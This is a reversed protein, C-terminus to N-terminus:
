GESSVGQQVFLPATQLSEHLGDPVKVLFGEIAEAATLAEDGGHPVIILGKAEGTDTKAARTMALLVGLKRTDAYKHMGTLLNEPGGARGIIGDLTDFVASFGLRM